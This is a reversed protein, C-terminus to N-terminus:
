GHPKIIIREGYEVLVESCGEDALLTARMLVESFSLSDVSASLLKQKEIKARPKTITRLSALDATTLERGQKEALQTLINGVWARRARSDFLISLPATGDSWVLFCDRTYRSFAEPKAVKGIGTMELFSRPSVPVHGSRMEKIAECGLQWPDATVLFQKRAVSLWDAVRGLVTFRNALEDLIRQGSETRSEFGAWSPLHLRCIDGQVIIELGSEILASGAYETSDEGLAATAGEPKASAEDWAELTADDEDGLEVEADLEPDTDHEFDDVMEAEAATMIHGDARLDALLSQVAVASGERVTQLVAGLWAKSEASANRRM